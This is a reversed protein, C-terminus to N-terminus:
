PKLNRTMGKALRVFTHVEDENLGKAMRQSTHREAAQIRAYMAEGAPTLRLIQSRRDQANDQKEILEAALLDKVLRAIQAKDRQLRAAIQQATCDSEPSAQAARIVKLSRIHAIGFTIGHELFSQQLARKYAHLLQHLAEGMASDTM